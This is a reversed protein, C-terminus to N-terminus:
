GYYFYVCIFTIVLMIRGWLYPLTHFGGVWYDFSWKNDTEPVYGWWRGLVWNIILPFILGFFSISLLLVFYWAVGGVTVAAWTFGAFALPRVIWTSWPKDSGDRPFKWWMFSDFTVEVMWPANMFLFVLILELAYTM